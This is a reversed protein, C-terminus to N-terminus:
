QLGRLQIQRTITLGNCSITIVLPKASGEWCRVTVAGNEYAASYCYPAPGGATVEIDAAVETGNETYIVRSIASRQMGLTAPLEPELALAAGTEAETVTIEFDATNEPNQELTVTITVTGEAIATVNGEADVTAIREDSSEYLYTIPHTETSYVPVDQADADSRLSYVGLNVTKGAQIELNGTARIEWKFALGGAIEREMDDLEPVQETKYLDFYMIHCPESTQRPKTSGDEQVLQSFDSIFDVIGSMQYVSRGLVVRTNHRLQETDANLQIACKQYDHAISNYDLYENSTANAPGKAWVFPETKVNGYFDLYNWIATCRRIVANGTDSAVARPATCLWTNGGFWLKAGTYLGQIRPDHFYVSQWDNPLQTGTSQEVLDMTRIYAGRIDEFRGTGPIVGQVQAAYNNSAYKANHWSFDNSEKAFYMKAHSAYPSPVGPTHSPSLPTGAFLGVNKIRRLLANAPM